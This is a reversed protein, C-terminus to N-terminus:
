KSIRLIQSALQSFCPKLDAATAAHCYVGVPQKPNYCRSLSDPTNAICKLVDQGYETDGAGQKTLLLDGLGLTFVYIGESRAKAAIAELLNRSINNVNTGTVNGNTVPRPSSVPWIPFTQDNKDHANYWQPLTKILSAANGNYCPSAVAQSLQDIRYLAGGLKGNDDTVVTGATNNCATATTDFMSAFSNPSGDSFFVIVRLSSPQTIANNLQDRAHWLGEASNTSGSFAYKNIATAMATRDFGRTNGNFPVDIQTGYAFHMLAVRDNTVDFNNLFNIANARVAAPVGSTNMSGTTDVVFAMDLTKRIAQSAASINLLNFGMTQAFTVPLKASASMDITVTGQDFVISPTGATVTSGLFGVPFNADFFASAAAKANAIQESQNNGRTVAQGAAIVAGDTAADLRARVMYGLGSDIALGLVGCMALLLVAVLINVAGRQRRTHRYLRKKTSAPQFAAM